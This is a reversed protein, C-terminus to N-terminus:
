RKGFGLGHNEPIEVTAVEYQQTQEETNSAYIDGKLGFVALALSMVSDDYFGEGDPCGYRAKEPDMTGSKPIKYEYDRLEQILQTLEPPISIMRQAIAVRLGDIIARKSPGSTIFGEVSLGLEKLDEVIPSGFSNEECIILAGYRTALAAISLKQLGWHSETMRVYAVVRKTLIDIVTFVSADHTRGLDIGMVYRHGSIPDELVGTLCQDLGRFVSQVDELFECLMEQKFLEEGMEKRAQELGAQSILGSEDARLDYSAWDSYDVLAGRRWFEWAHNRGKPTFYFDCWGSSETLVPRLIEDFIERKQLAWEDLVAGKVRIGRISDPDDAGLIRLVSGTVFNAYLESENFPKALVGAPLYRHLMMPDRVVIAKAQKYTPAIYVFTENRTECCAKILKNLGLTTKRARRHWRHIKFRHETDRLSQVMWRHPQFEPVPIRISDSQSM